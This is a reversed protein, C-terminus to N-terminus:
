PGPGRKLRVEQQAAPKPVRAERTMSIIGARGWQQVAPKPIRAERIM